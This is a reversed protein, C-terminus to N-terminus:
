STLEATFVISQDIEMMRHLIAACGTQQDIADPDYHHDATFKGSHYQDTASWIYPSPKGINAYGLGNYKELLSLAGGITWDKWKAAFPACNRLADRAADEWSDFPGRGAPVHVSRKNWSDGQAINAAWSQSAERQHIVAIVAWPVGTSAAVSLYREKAGAETLDQAIRDILPAWIPLVKMAKWRRTNANTLAVVDAM